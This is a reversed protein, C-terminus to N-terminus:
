LIVVKAQTLAKKSNESELAAIKKRIREYEGGETYEEGCKDCVFYTADTILYKGNLQSSTVKRTPVKCKYCDLKM